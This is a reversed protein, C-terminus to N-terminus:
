KPVPAPRAAPPGAAPPPQGVTKSPQLQMELMPTMDMVQADAPPRYVFTSDPVDLNFKVNKFEMAAVLNTKSKDFQEFRHPFGDNQGIFVRSRGILAVAKAMQQNTLAALKWSGDMVYMPQSDLKQSETVTFNFIQRGVEWQKSPDMKALPDVSLGTQAAANSTVKNVDIKIIQHELGVDMIQWLIGDGGLFMTMQGQQGMVPMDLHVWMKGPQKHIMQGSVTMQGNPTSATQSYDASWTKYGATKADSFDMIEKATKLQQARAHFVLAPALLCLTTAMASKRITKV